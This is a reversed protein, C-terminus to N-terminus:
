KRSLYLGLLIIGAGILHTLGVTEGVFFGIILSFVPFLYAVSTAFVASTRQVLLVYIVSAIVTGIIALYAVYSTALWNEPRVAVEFAGTKWAGLLYFIGTIMFSASGVAIPHMTKLHAGITNANIAYMFAGALCLLAGFTDVHSEAGNKAFILLYVAGALGILIGLIKSFGPKTKFIIAGLALTFLPVMSNLVGAIGSSVTKEGMAFFYNPLGSGCLAVVCLAKWKSWDIKKLFYLGFPLYLLAAMSMRLFTAQMPTYTKTMEKIFYFSCGWMIGCLLLLFWDLAKPATSHQM